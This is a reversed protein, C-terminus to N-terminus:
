SLIIAVDPVPCGTDSFTLGGYVIGKGILLFLYFLYCVRDTLSIFTFWIDIYLENYTIM